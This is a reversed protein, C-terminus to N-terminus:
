KSVEARLKRATESFIGRLSMYVAEEVDTHTHRYAQDAAKSLDSLMDALMTRVDTLDETLPGHMDRVDELSVVCGLYRISVDARSVLTLLGPKQEEWTDGDCDIFRRARAM